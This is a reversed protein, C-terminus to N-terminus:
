LVPHLNLFISSSTVTDGTFLGALSMGAMCVRQGRGVGQEGAARKEEVRLGM